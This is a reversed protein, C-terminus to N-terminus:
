EPEVEEEDEAEEGEETEGADEEGAEAEEGEETEGTEDEEEEEREAAREELKARAAETDIDGGEAEDPLEQWDKEGSWLEDYVGDDIDQQVEIPEKDDVLVGLSQASGLIEKTAGRLDLAVLDPLKLDAVEIVDKLPMNAVKITDPEGSGADLEAREKLLAAAPPTGVDIDFDGTEDDVVVEVPVEMGEFGGTAENIASVVENIDVAEIPALTPGLPPGASAEGGEVLLNVTEEGM